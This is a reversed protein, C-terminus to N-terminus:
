VESTSARCAAVLIGVTQDALETLALLKSQPLSQLSPHPDIMARLIGGTWVAPNASIIIFLTLQHRNSNCVVGCFIYYYTHIIVDLPVICCCIM